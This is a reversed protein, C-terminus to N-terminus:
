TLKDTSKGMDQENSRKWRIKMKIV